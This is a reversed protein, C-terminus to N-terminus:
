HAFQADAYPLNKLSTKIVFDFANPEAYWLRAFPLADSILDVGCKDRRPRVEYFTTHIQAPSDRLSAAPHEATLAVIKARDFRTLTSKKNV